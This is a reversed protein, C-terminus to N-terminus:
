YKVIKFLRTEDKVRVSLIYLGCPQSHMNIRISASKNQASTITRGLLDSIFITEEGKLGEVVLEDKVPNPYVKIENFQNSEAVGALRYVLITDSGLCGISDIVEVWYEGPDGISIMQTNAQTSWLYSLYGSGANLTVMQNTDIGISDYLFVFLNEHLSILISDSFDGCENTLSLSYEGADYVVISSAMDGTSWFYTAPILNDPELIVSEGLCITTDNGLDPNPPITFSVQITDVDSGCINTVTVSYQGSQSALYISDTM